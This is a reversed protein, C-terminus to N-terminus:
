RRASYVEYTYQSRATIRLLYISRCDASLTPTFDSISEIRTTTPDDDLSPPVPLGASSPAGFPVLRSERTFMALRALTNGADVAGFLHLTDGVFEPNQVKSSIGPVQGPSGFPLALSSREGLAATPLDPNTFDTSLASLEDPSVSISLGAMGLADPRLTFMANRDAREAVRIPGMPTVALDICTLYLRLGNDSVDLSPQGNVPCWAFLEAALEVPEGLPADRSARKRVLIHGGDDRDEAYYLELDDGTVSLSTPTVGATGTFVLKVEGFAGSCDTSPAFGAAAGAGGAGSSSGGRGMGAM